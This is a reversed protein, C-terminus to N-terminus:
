RVEVSLRDGDRDITMRWVQPPAALLRRIDETLDIGTDNVDLLVDGPRLGLRAAPSNRAIDSVMVGYRERRLGLEEVLAPSLNVFTAGAFPAGRRVTVPDRPPDEPPAVLLFSVDLPDGDRLVGLAVVEDIGRTALRFRLNQIDEVKAGDVAVVIDGSRLGARAAPGNGNVNEVIVGHPAAMGLAGAMDWDVSQGDFGLWPRTVGRGTEAARVVARVMNSPVAFGIGHSGGSGSFIATNIGIVSGDMAVLAGGSNGPNIAADTQVFSQYDSIDVSTRALGSVIGSTVTQGVGFPNGIALVLDGVALDDSDGLVVNPIEGRPDILRLVALDTREDSLVIEAAFERRDRLIVTIDQADAIVHHNTVVMGGDSVIVGSGLSNELRRRTPGGGFNEGFFRQFFPDDFLPSRFARQEVVKQAYINVVAPAVAEVLPAFTLTIQERSTPVTDQAAAPAPVGASVVAAVALAGLFTRAPGLAGGTWFSPRKMGGIYSSGGGRFLM